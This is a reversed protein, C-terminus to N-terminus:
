NAQSKRQMVLPYRFIMLLLYISLYILPEAMDAKVLWAFHLIVLAVALYVLKHLQKWNKGLHRIAIKNSTLALPLLMLWASFGVTIYPRKLIDEGIAEWMFYQDLWLYTLLHLSAYFFAFLGLMRRLNLLWGVGSLKRVPTVSLTILLFYLGWSGTEHTLTEIPNAGLDDTVIRSLLLLFPIACTLFIVPKVLWNLLRRDPTLM